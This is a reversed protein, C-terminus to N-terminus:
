TNEVPPGRNLMPPGAGGTGRGRAGLTLWWLPPGEAQSWGCWSGVRDVSFLTFCCMLWRGTWIDAPVLAQKLFSWWVDWNDLQTTEVHLYKKKTPNNDYGAHFRRGSLLMQIVASLVTINFRVDIGIIFIRVPIQTSDRAFHIINSFIDVSVDTNNLPVNRGIDLKAFM